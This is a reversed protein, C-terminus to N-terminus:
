SENQYLRAIIEKVINLLIEKEKEAELWTNDCFQTDDFADEIERIIKEYNESDRKM